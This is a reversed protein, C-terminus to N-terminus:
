LSRLSTARPVPRLLPCSPPRLAPPPNSVRPALSAPRPRIYNNSPPPFKQKSDFPRSTHNELATDATSCISYLPRQREISPLQQQRPRRFPSLRSNADSDMPYSQGPHKTLVIDTGVLRHVCVYRVKSTTACQAISAHKFGHFGISALFIEKETLISQPLYFTFDIM